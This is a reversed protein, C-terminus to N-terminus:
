MSYGHHHEKSLANGDGDFLAWWEAEGPIVGGVAVSKKMELIKKTDVARAEQWQMLAEFDRCQRNVNFDPFPYDAEEIWNLTLMETNANCM